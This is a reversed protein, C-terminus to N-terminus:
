VGGGGRSHLPRCPAVDSIAPSAGGFAPDDIRRIVLIEAPMSQLLVGHRPNLRGLAELYRDLTHQQLEESGLRWRVFLRRALAAKKYRVVRSAGSAISVIRSRFNAHLDLVTDFSKSRVRRCLAALSEGKALTMVENISPENKLVDAYAEKVLATIYAEPESARLRQVVPLTLVVDGLSSLRIVL